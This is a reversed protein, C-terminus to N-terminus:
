GHHRARVKALLRRGKDALRLLKDARGYLRAAWGNKHGVAKTATASDLERTAGHADVKRERAPSRAEIEPKQVRKPV